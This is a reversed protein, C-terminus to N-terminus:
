YSIKEVPEKFEETKVEPFKVDSGRLFEFKAGFEVNGATAFKYGPIGEASLGASLDFGVSADVGFSVLGTEKFVLAYKFYADSKATFTASSLTTDDAADDNMEKEIDEKGLKGSYSFGAKGHDKFEGGEPLEKFFEEYKADFEAIDATDILPFEEDKLGLPLKVKGSAPISGVLKCVYTNIFSLTQKNSLDLYLNNELIDASAKYTGKFEASTAPMDVKPNSAPVTINTNYKVTTSGNIDIGAYLTARFDNCSDSTMGKVGFNFEGNKAEVKSTISAFTQNAISISGDIKESFHAGNISFGFADSKNEDPTMENKVALKLKEKGVAADIKTGNNPLKTEAGTSGCSALFLPIFLLSIHKKHKMM